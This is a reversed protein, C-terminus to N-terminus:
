AVKLNGGVERCWGAAAESTILSKTFPCSLISRLAMSAKAEDAAFSVKMQLPVAANLLANFTLKVCSRLDKNKSGNLCPAYPDEPIPLGKRALLMACHLGSYDVEVTPKGDIIIYPRLETTDRLQHFNSPPTIEPHVLGGLRRSVGGSSIM